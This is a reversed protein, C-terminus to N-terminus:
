WCLYAASIMMMSPVFQSAKVFNILAFEVHRFCFKIFSEGSIGVLILIPTVMRCKMFLLMDEALNSM